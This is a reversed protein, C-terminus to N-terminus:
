VVNSMWEGFNEEFTVNSEAATGFVETAAKGLLMYGLGVSHLGVVWM